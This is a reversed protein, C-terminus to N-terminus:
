GLRALIREPDRTLGAPVSPASMGWPGDFNLGYGSKADAMPRVYGYDPTGYDMSEELDFFDHNTPASAGVLLHFGFVDMKTVRTEGTRTDFTSTRTIATFEIVDDSTYLVFMTDTVKLLNSFMGLQKVSRDLYIEITVIQVCNNFPCGHKPM